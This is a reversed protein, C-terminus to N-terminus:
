RATPYREESFGSVFGYGEHIGTLFTMQPDIKSLLSFSENM